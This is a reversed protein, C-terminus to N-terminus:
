RRWARCTVPNMNVDMSAEMLTVGGEEFADPRHTIMSASVRMAQLHDGLVTEVAQEWGPVVSLVEGLREAQWVRHKSGTM